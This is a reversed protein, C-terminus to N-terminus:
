RDTLSHTPTSSSPKDMVEANTGHWLSGVESSVINAADVDESQNHTEQYCITQRKVVLRKVVYSQWMALNQIRDVQVNPRKLTSLFAAV